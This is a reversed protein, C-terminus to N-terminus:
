VLQVAGRMNQMALGQWVISLTYQHCQHRLWAFWTGLCFTKGLWMFDSWFHGQYKEDNDLSNSQNLILSDNRLTTGNHVLEPINCYGSITKLLVSGTNPIAKINKMMTLPFQNIWHLGTMESDLAMRSWKQFIAIVWSQKGFIWPFHSAIMWRIMISVPPVNEVHLWPKWEHLLMLNLM